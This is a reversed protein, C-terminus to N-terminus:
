RAWGGDNPKDYTMWFDVPWCVTDPVAEVVADCLVLLGLPVTLINLPVYAGYDSPCDSMMQPFAVIISAMAATRTAQYTVQLESDSFPNRTYAVSVCGSVAVAIALCEAFAWARLGGIAWRWVRYGTWVMLVVAYLPILFATTAIEKCTIKM